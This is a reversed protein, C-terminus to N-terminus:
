GVDDGLLFWFGFLVFLVDGTVMDFAEKVEGLDDVAPFLFLLGGM